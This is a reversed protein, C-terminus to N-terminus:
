CAECNATAVLVHLESGACAGAEGVPLQETIVYLQGVLCCAVGRWVAARDAFDTRAAASVQECSPPNGQNDPQPVCRLITVVLESVTYPATCNNPEVLIQPFSQSLYTRVMHVALQGCDCEDWTIDSGYMVCQRDPARAETEDLAAAACELIQNARVWFADAQPVKVSM